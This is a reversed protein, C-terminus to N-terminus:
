QAIVGGERIAWAEAATYAAANFGYPFMRTEYLRRNRYTVIGIVAFNGGVNKTSVRVTKGNCKKARSDATM